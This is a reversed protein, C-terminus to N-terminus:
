YHSIGIVPAVSKIFDVYGPLVKSDAYLGPGYAGSEEYRSLTSLYGALLSLDRDSRERVESRTPHNTVKKVPEKSSQMPLTAPLHCFQGALLSLQDIGDPIKVQLLHRDGVKLSSGAPTMAHDELHEM